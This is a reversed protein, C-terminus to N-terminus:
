DSRCLRSCRRPPADPEVRSLDWREYDIGLEGLAARVEAENEMVNEDPPFRLVAM